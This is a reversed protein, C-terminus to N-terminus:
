KGYLVAGLSIASSAREPADLPTSREWGQAQMVKMYPLLTALTIVCLLVSPVLVVIGSWLERLFRSGSSRSLRWLIWCDLALFAALCILSLSRNEIVPRTRECMFLTLWPLPLGVKAYSQQILPVAGSLWLFATVWILGHLAAAAASVTIRHRDLW